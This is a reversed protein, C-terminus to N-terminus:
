TQDIKVFFKGKVERWPLVGKEEEYIMSERPFSFSKFIHLTYLGSQMQEFFSLLGCFFVPFTCFYCCVTFSDELLLVQTTSTCPPLCGSPTLSQQDEVESCRWKHGPTDLQGLLVAQRGPPRPSELWQCRPRDPPVPVCVSNGERWKAGPTAWGSSGLSHGHKIQM